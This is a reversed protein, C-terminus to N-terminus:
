GDPLRMVLHATGGGKNGLARKHRQCRNVGGVLDEQLLEILRQASRSGSQGGESQQTVQDPFLWRPNMADALRRQQM